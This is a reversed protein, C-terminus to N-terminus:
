KPRNQALHEEAEKALTVCRTKADESMKKDFSPNRAIIDRDRAASTPISKEFNYDRLNLPTDDSAAEEPGPTKPDLRPPFPIVSGLNLWAYAEVLSAPGQKILGGFRTSGSYAELCTQGMWRQAQKCGLLAASRRWSLASELNKEIGWGNEYLRGLHFQAMRHNKMSAKVMWSYAEFYDVPVTKDPEQLYFLALEYQAQSNGAEAKGKTRQFRQKPTLESEPLKTEEPPLGIKNLDLLMGGKQSNTQPAPTEAQSSVAIALAFIGLTLSKSM